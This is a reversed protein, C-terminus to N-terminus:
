GSVKSEQELGSHGTSIRRLTRGLRLSRRIDAPSKPHLLHGRSNKQAGIFLHRTGGPAGAVEVREGGNNGLEFSM